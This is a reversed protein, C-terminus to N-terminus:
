QPEGDKWKESLGSSTVEWLPYANKPEIKSVEGWHTDGSIILVGNIKHRQIFSILRNAIM